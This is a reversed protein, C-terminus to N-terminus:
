LRHLATQPCAAGRIGYAVRYSPQLDFARDELGRWDGFERSEEGGKNLAGVMTVVYLVRLTVGCEPYAYFRRRPSWQAQRAEGGTRPRLRTGEAMELDLRM